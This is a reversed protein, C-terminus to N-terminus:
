LTVDVFFCADRRCYHTKVTVDYKGGRRDGVDVNGALFKGGMEWNGAPFMERGLGKRDFVGM